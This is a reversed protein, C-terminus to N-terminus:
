RGNTEIFERILKACPAPREWTLGHMSERLIRLRANPLEAALKYGTALPFTEDRAGWIILCPVKVLAYREVIPEIREWDPRRDPRFPIAQVIMAQAARRTARDRLLVILRDAEERPVKETDVAAKKMAEASEERLVGFFDGLEIELPTLEAIREFAPNPREIATDVPALLVMRDVRDLPDAFDSRIEPDAFVRLWIMGGLCHGVLTIDRPPVDRAKLRSRLALLVSRGLSEPGYGDPGLAAPDPKDSRGCGPLDIAMLDYEPALLGTMFRWADSDSLAGHLLVILHDRDGTGTEHVAVYAPRGGTAVRTTRSQLLRGSAKLRALGAIEDEPQLSDYVSTCAGFLNSMCFILVLLAVRRTNRIM